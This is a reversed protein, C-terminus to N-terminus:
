NILQGFMRHLLNFEISAPFQRRWVVLRKLADDDLVIVFGRDDAATDRCRALM